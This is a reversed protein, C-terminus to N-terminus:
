TSRKLASQLSWRYELPSLIDQNKSTSAEAEDQDVNPFILGDRKWGPGFYGDKNDSKAKSTTSYGVEMKPASLSYSVLPSVVLETEIRKIGASFKTKTQITYQDGQSLLAASSPSMYPSVSSVQQRKNPYDQYDDFGRSSKHQNGNFYDGDDSFLSKAPFKMDISGLLLNAQSAIRPISAFGHTSGGSVVDIYGPKRPSQMIAFIGSISTSREKRNLPVADDAIPASRPTFIPSEWCGQNWCFDDPREKELKCTPCFIPDILPPTYDDEEEEDSQDLGQIMELNEKLNPRPYGGNSKIIKEQMRTLHYIVNDRRLKKAQELKAISSDRNKNPNNFDSNKGGKSKNQTLRARIANRRRIREKRRERIRREMEPDNVYINNSRLTVSFKKDHEDDSEDVDQDTSTSSSTQKNTTSLKKEGDTKEDQENADPANKSPTTSERLLRIEDKKKMVRNEGGDLEILFFGHSSRIVRGILGNSIIVVRRHLWEGADVQSQLQFHPQISFLKNSSGGEQARRRSMSGFLPTFSGDTKSNKNVFEFQPRRKMVISGDIEIGFYGYAGNRIVGTKGQHSGGTIIVQEGALRSGTSSYTRTRSHPSFRGRMGSLSYAADDESEVSNSRRKVAQSSYTNIESIIRDFPTGIYEEVPETSFNSDDGNKAPSQYIITLPDVNVPNDNVGKEGVALAVDYTRKTVEISKEEAEMDNQREKEDLRVEVWGLTSTNVVKGLKGKYKGNRVVVNRDQWTNSDLQSLLTLGEINMSKELFLPPPFIRPLSNKRRSLPTEDGLMSHYSSTSDLHNRRPKVNGPLLSPSSIIGVLSPPIDVLSLATAQFKILSDQDPFAIKYWTNPHQPVDIIEGIKGILTPNRIRVNNNDNVRVRTGKQLYPIISEKANSKPSSPSMMISPDISMGTVSSFSSMGRLSRTENGTIHDAYPMSSSNELSSPNHGNHNNNSSDNLSLASFSPTRGPWSRSSLGTLSPSDLSELATPRFTLIAGDDFAVKYWTNPHQPVEIVRGVQGIRDPARQEVAGTRRVKVRCGYRFGPSSPIM